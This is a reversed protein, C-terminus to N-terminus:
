KLIEKKIFELCTKNLPVNDDLLRKASKGYESDKSKDIKWDRTHKAYGAGFIEGIIGFEVAQILYHLNAGDEGLLNEKQIKIYLQNFFEQDKRTYAFFHALEHIVNYVFGNKSIPNTDFDGYYKLTITLPDSYSNPAILSIYGKIYKEPIEIKYMERFLDLIQKDYKDWIKQAVETKKKGLQSHEKTPEKGALKLLANEYPYSYKFKVISNSIM